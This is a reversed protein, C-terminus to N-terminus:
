KLISKNKPKEEVNVSFPCAENGWKEVFCYLYQLVSDCMISKKLKKFSNKVYHNTNQGADNEINTKFTKLKISLDNEYM